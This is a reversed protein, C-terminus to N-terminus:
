NKTNLVNWRHATMKNPSYKIGGSTSNSWDQTKKLNTPKGGSLNGYILNRKTVDTKSNVDSYMAIHNVPATIIMMDGPSADSKPLTFTNVDIDKAQLGPLAASKFSSVSSYDDSNSDFTTKGDATQLQLPLGNESAYGILITLAADACDLKVDPNNAMENLKAQAYDAFGKADSSNWDRMVSWASDGLVDVNLIPNNRAYTYSSFTPFSDVMRDQILFRGIQPDYMRAGYDYDELGTGDLFEKNQLEKGNYKIRNLYYNQKIAQTSLAPNEMGFSYYDKQEVLPGHKLNVVLNDFFVDQNSQNSLYVYIWGNRRVVM